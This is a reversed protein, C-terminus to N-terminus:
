MMAREEPTRAERLMTALGLIGGQPMADLANEVLHLLVQRLGFPEGM